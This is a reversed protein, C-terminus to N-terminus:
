FVVSDSCYSYEVNDPVTLMGCQRSLLFIGCQRPCNFVVSDSCFSCEVNDPVTLIGCHLFLSFMVCQRSFSFYWVTPDTLVNLM